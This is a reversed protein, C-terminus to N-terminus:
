EGPTASGQRSIWLFGSSTKLYVARPLRTATTELPVATRPRPSMPGSAALGTMSPFPTRKLRKAPISTKSRSTPDLSASSTMRKQSSRSGVTPPILRSSMAAGSHKTMSRVSRSRSSMGTKWSSWCPVAMMAPAPSRLASSSTPFSSSSTRTTKLPAPAEAREVAAWRFRSPTGASFM